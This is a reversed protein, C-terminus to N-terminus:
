PGHVLIPARGCRRATVRTASTIITALGRKRQIAQFFLKM